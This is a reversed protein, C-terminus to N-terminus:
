RLRHKIVCPEFSLYNTGYLNARITENPCNLRLSNPLYRDQM